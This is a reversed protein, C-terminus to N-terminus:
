FQELFDDLSEFNDGIMMKKNKLRYKRKRLTADNIQLLLGINQSSVKMKLLSCLYLDSPTLEAFHSKLRDIFGDFCLNVSNLLNDLERDSLAVDSASRIKKAENMEKLGEIKRIVEDMQFIRNKLERQKQKLQAMEEDKMSLSGMLETEQDHAQQRMRMLEYNRDKVLQMSQNILLQKAEITMKAKKKLRGYIIWALMLAIVFSLSLVIVLVSKSHSEQQLSNRQALLSSYDYLKQIKLLDNQKDESYSSDLYADYIKRYELADKYNHAMEELDAKDGYYTALQYYHDQCKSQEIYYAASDYQCLDTFIRGKMSMLSKDESDNILNIARNLNNLAEGFDQKQWCAVAMGKYMKGIYYNDGYTQALKLAQGFMREAGHWDSQYILEWAERDSVALIKATDKLQIACQKATKYKEISETYPQEARIIWGWSTYIHYKLELNDTQKALDAAKLFSKIAKADEGLNAYIKGKAYQSQAQMLVNNAAQASSIMMDVTDLLSSTSDPNAYSLSDIRAIFSPMDSATQHKRCASLLAIVIFVLLIKPLTRM